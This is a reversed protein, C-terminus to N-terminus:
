LSGSRQILRPMSQLCSFLPSGASHAKYEFLIMRRGAGEASDTAADEVMVKRYQLVGGDIVVFPGSCSPDWSYRSTTSMPAKYQLIANGSLAIAWVRTASSWFCISAAIGWTIWCYASLFM